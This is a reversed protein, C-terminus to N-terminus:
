PAGFFCVVFHLILSDAILYLEIIYLWFLIDLCIYMKFTFHYLVFCWAYLIYHILFLLTGFSVTYDIFPNSSHPESCCSWHRHLQCPLLCLSWWHYILIIHIFIIDVWMFATVTCMWSVESFIMAHSGRRHGATSTHLSLIRISQQLWPATNTAWHCFCAPSGPVLIGAFLAELNNCHCHKSAEM